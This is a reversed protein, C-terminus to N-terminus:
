QFAELAWTAHALVLVCQYSRHKKKLKRGCCGVTKNLLAFSFLHKNGHNWGSFNRVSQKSNKTGVLSGIKFVSGPHDCYTLLPLVQFAIGVETEDERGYASGAEPPTLGAKVGEWLLSSISQPERLIHPFLPLPWAHTYTWLWLCLLKSQADPLQSWLIVPIRQSGWQSWPELPCTFCSHALPDPILSPVTVQIHM